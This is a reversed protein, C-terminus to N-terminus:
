CSSGYFSLITNLDRFDVVGDDNLDGLVGPGVPLGLSSLVITLDIFNVTNDGNADGPCASRVIGVGFSGTNNGWQLADMVGLFLRTAGRPTRVTQQAGTSTLGDGIFFVQKLLPAVQAYDRDFQSVFMLGPPAPAAAPDEPGLFVGILAGAPAVINSMGRLAEGGCAYSVPLTADGDPGFGPSAAQYFGLGGASFALSIGESFTVGTAARPSHLGPHNGCFSGAELGALWVCSDAEVDFGGDIRMRVFTTDAPQGGHFGFVKGAAAGSTFAVFRGRVANIDAINTIDPTIDLTLIRNFDSSGAGSIAFGTVAPSGTLGALFGGLGIVGAGASDTAVLFSAATLTAANTDGPSEAFDDLLQRNAAVRIESITTASAGTTAITPLATIGSRPLYALETVVDPASSGGTDIAFLAIDFTSNFRYNNGSLPGNGDPDAAWFEPLPISVGANLDAEEIEGDTNISPYASFPVQFYGTGETNAGIFALLDPISDGIQGAGTGLNSSRGIFVFSGAARGNGNTNGILQLAAAANAQSSEPFVARGRNRFGAGGATQVTLSSDAGPTGNLTGSPTELVGINTVERPFAFTLVASDDGVPVAGSSPGSNLMVLTPQAAIPASLSACAAACWGAMNRSAMRM